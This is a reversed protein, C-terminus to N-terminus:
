TPSRSASSLEEIVGATEAIRAFEGKLTEVQVSHVTEADWQGREFTATADQILVVEGKGQDAYETVGLNAAMRTSTSVCHDTTLGAIYLLRIHKERLLRELNTGIFASNVSKSLIPEGPLPESFPLFDIGPSSTHLPSTPDKSSHYVHFIHPGSGQDGQQADRFAKLLAATNKEFAPNSRTRGWHTPHEFGKQNDILLLATNSLDISM